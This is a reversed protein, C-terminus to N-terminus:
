TSHQLSKGKNMKIVVEELLNKLTREKNWAHNFTSVIQYCNLEVNQFKLMLKKNNRKYKATLCSRLFQNM